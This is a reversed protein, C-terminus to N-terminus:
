VREVFIREGAIGLESVLRTVSDTVMASPGCVYIEAGRNAFPPLLEALHQQVYGRRGSWSADPQSLTPEFRFRARKLALAALEDRWL